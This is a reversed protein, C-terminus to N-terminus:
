GTADCHMADYTETLLVDGPQSAICALVSTVAAAAFTIVLKVDETVAGSGEGGFGGLYGSFSPNEKLHHFATYLLSTLVDFSVQKTMTYPVQKALMASLGAFTSAVGEERILRGIAALM